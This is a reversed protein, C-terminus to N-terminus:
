PLVGRCGQYVAGEFCELTPLGFAHFAKCFAILSVTFYVGWGWGLSDPFGVSCCGRGVGVTGELGGKMGLLM